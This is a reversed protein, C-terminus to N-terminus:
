MHPQDRRLTTQFIQFNMLANIGKETNKKDPNIQVLLDHTELGDGLNELKATDTASPLHFTVPLSQTPYVHVYPAFLSKGGRM